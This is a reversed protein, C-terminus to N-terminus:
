SISKKPKQKEFVEDFDMQASSDYEYYSMVLSTQEADVSKYDLLIENNQSDWSNIDLRKISKEYFDKDIKIFDDKKTKILEVFAEYQLFNFNMKEKYMYMFLLVSSDKNLAYKLIKGSNLKGKKVIENWFFEDSINFKILYDIQDDFVGDYSKIFQKGFDEDNTKLIFEFINNVFNPYIALIMKLSLIDKKKFLIKLICYPDVLTYKEKFFDIYTKDNNFNGNVVRKYDRNYFKAHYALSVLENPDKIELIHNYLEKSIKKVKEYELYNSIELLNM